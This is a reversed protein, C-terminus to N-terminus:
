LKIFIAKRYMIAAIIWWFVAYGLAWLLSATEGALGVGALRRCSWNRAGTMIWMGIVESAVYLALPNLGLLALPHGWKRWGKEEVTWYCAGLAIAAFGASLVAYSSTWLSKNIPFAINWLEAIAIAVIGSGALGIVKARSGRESGLWDGALTGLLGSAIAPVTSLVGEPDWTSRWLHGAMLKRDIWSALNNEPTLYGGHHGPAPVLALLAWYGLLLLCCLSWRARSGARLGILCTFLYVLGIRQLVGPIRVESWPLYLIGNMVLGIAILVFSRILGHRLIENQGQGRSLRADISLVVSVGMIFIFFPFVLDAPTWGNWEAHRLPPYISDWSGPNNVLIMAAVALGRVVDLSLLRQRPVRSTRTSDTGPRTTVSISINM